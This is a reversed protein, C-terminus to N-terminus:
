YIFFLFSVCVVFVVVLLIIIIIYKNNNDNKGNKRKKEGENKEQSDNDNNDEKNESSVKYYHFLKDNRDFTLTYKQLFQLGLRWETDKDTNYDRLEKNVVLFYLYEDHEYFLDKPTLVFTMNTDRIYFNINDMENIDVKDKYCYHFYYQSNQNLKERFCIKDDLKKGFFKNHILEAYENTSYILRTNITIIAENHDKMVERENYKNLNGYYIESFEIRYPYYNTRVFNSTYRDKEKYTENKVEHPFKGIVFKGKNYDTFDLYWLQKEIISNNKLQGLLNLNKFNSTITDFDM